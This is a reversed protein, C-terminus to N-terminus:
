TSVWWPPSSGEKAESGGSWCFATRKVWDLIDKLWPQSTCTPCAACTHMAHACARMARACVHVARACLLVCPM